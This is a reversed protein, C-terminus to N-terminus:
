CVKQWTKRRRLSSMNEIDIKEYGLERIIPHLFELNEKLEDDTMSKVFKKSDINRYLKIKNGLIINSM